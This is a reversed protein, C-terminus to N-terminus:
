PGTIRLLTKKSILSSSLLFSSVLFLPQLCKSRRHSRYRYRCANLVITTRLVHKFRNRSSRSRAMLHGQGTTWDIERTVLITPFFVVCLQSGALQGCKTNQRLSQSISLTCWSPMNRKIAVIKLFVTSVIHQSSYVLMLQAQIKSIYLVARTSKVLLSFTVVVLYFLCFM